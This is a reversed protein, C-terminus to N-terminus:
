GQNEELLEAARALLKQRQNEERGDLVQDLLSKLARGLAPCPRYGLELLDRGNVALGALTLCDGRALIEKALAGAQDILALRGPVLEEAQASVDGRMLALLDEFGEPGLAALLRKVRTEGMPLPEGHREVLTVIRRAEEGPFRLRDLLGRALQVGAKGHGFFHAQGREDLTKTCPKGGDHLLAAWRLVPRDPVAEVTHLSHEWANFRHYPSEQTCAALPQLEPVAAFFLTRYARLTEAARAGQLLKTLEERTREGSVTKLLGRNKEAAWSTEPDVVFGLVSAFRMCRLIRLADEQFRQEPEGVCRLLGRALDERGGFPDLIGREPHYAMANVTFDRRALDEEVQRTFAVEEPRRHSAYAGEVRYTTVEVVGRPTVLGVTGLARGAEVRSVEPFCAATEGPLASTTIDWDGPRRGLLSDRVCGGVCWAEFGASELRALVARVYAPVAIAM